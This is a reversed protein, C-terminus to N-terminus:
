LLFLSFFFSFELFSQDFFQSSVRTETTFSDTMLPDTVKNELYNFIFYFFQPCFTLAINSIIFSSSGLHFLCILLCLFAATQRQIVVCTLLLNAYLHRSIERRWEGGCKMAANHFFFPFKRIRPASKVAASAHASTEPRWLRVRPDNSSRRSRSPPWGSAWSTPSITVREAHEMVSSSRRLASIRWVLAPARCRNAAVKRM